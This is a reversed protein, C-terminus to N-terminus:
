NKSLRGWRAGVVSMPIGDGNFTYVRKIEEITKHKQIEIGVCTIASINVLTDNVDNERGTDRVQRAYNTSRLGKVHLHYQIQTKNIIM